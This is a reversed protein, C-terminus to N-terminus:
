CMIRDELITKSAQLESSFLQMAYDQDDAAVSAARKGRRGSLEALDDLQLQMALMASAPDLGMMGMIEAAM